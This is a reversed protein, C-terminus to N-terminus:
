EFFMLHLVLSCLIDLFLSRSSRDLTFVNSLGSISGDLADIVKPVFVLEAEIVVQRLCLFFHMTLPALSMFTEANVFLRISYMFLFKGRASKTIVGILCFDVDM